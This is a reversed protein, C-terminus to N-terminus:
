WKEQKKFFFVQQLQSFFSVFIMHLCELSNRSINVKVSNTLYKFRHLYTVKKMFSFHQQNAFKTFILWEWVCKLGNQGPKAHLFKFFYPELFKCTNLSGYLYIKAPWNKIDTFFSHQLLRTVRYDYCGLFRSDEPPM